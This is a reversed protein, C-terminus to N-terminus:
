FADIELRAAAPEDLVAFEPDLGAALANARLLRSCFAHITSIAATEAARARDRDGLALLRARVRSRMEAAAKETFTIALVRDVPVSDDAVTAVFREVLVRTKGSGAGARVFLPGDRRAVVDRQEPTLNVAGGPLDVPLHVRRRELRLERPM